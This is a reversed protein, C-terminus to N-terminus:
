AQSKDEGQKPKTAKFLARIAELDMLDAELLLRLASLLAEIQAQTM